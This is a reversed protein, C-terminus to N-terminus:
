DIPLVEGGPLTVVTATFGGPAGGSPSTGNLSTGNLSWGNLVLGNWALGNLTWGNLTLGNLVIGNLTTGNLWVGGGGGGFLAVPPLQTTPRSVASAAIGNTSVGNFGCRWVSCVNGGDGKAELPAIGNASPGQLVIGPGAAAPVSALAAAAMATMMFTKIM